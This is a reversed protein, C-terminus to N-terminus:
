TMKELYTPLPVGYHEFFQRQLAVDIYNKLATMGTVKQRGEKTRRVHNLEKGVKEALKALAAVAQKGNHFRKKKAYLEDILKEALVTAQYTRLKHVTCGTDEGGLEAFLKNVVSARVPKRKGGKTDYTFLQESPGFAELKVRKLYDVILCDTDDKAIFEHKTKVGDKGRYSLIFGGDTTRFHKVRLTSIGYTKTGNDTGNGESGVRASFRHLLELIVAAVFKPNNYECEDTRIIDMWKGRIEDIQDLLQRVNLFKKTRQAKVFEETYFYNGKTGDARVAVFVWPSSEPHFNPNMQVTPFMFGSPKGHIKKHGYKKHIAFWAGKRDIGGVFGTPLYHTVNAHDLYALFSEYSVTDSGMKDFWEELKNKWEQNFERRLKNYDKMSQPYSAKLVEVLEPQIDVQHPGFGQQGMGRLIKSMQSRITKQAANM